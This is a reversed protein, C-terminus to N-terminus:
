VLATPEELSDDCNDPSRMGGGPDCAAPEDPQPRLCRNDIFQQFLAVIDDERVLGNESRAALIAAAWDRFPAPMRVSVIAEYGRPTYVGTDPM